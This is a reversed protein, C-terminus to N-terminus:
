EQEIIVTRGEVRLRGECFLRVAEPLLKWEAQEMIRKQLTERDFPRVPLDASQESIRSKIGYAVKLVDRHHFCVM